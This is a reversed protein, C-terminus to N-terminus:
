QVNARLLSQFKEANHGYLGCKFCILHLGEYEILLKHGRIVIHSALPKAFNVEACIYVVMNAWSYISTLRDIKLTTGLVFGIRWLFQANYLEMPLKPM